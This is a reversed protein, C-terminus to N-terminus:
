GFCPWDFVLSCHVCPLLCCRCTLCRRRMLKHLWSVEHAIDILAKLDCIQMRPNTPSELMVLTTCGPQIAAQVARCLVLQCSTPCCQANVAQMGAIRKLM